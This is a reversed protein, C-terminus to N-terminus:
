DFKVGMYDYYVKRFESFPIYLPMFEGSAFEVDTIDVENGDEDDALIVSNEAISKIPCKSLDIILHKPTGRLDENYNPLDLKAMQEYHKIDEMKLMMIQTELIGTNKDFKYM